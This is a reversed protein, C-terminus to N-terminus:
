ISWVDRGDFLGDRTLIPVIDIRGEQWLGIEKAIRELASAPGVNKVVWIVKGYLRRDEYYTRLVREYGAMEKINLEVEVAISNPSGDPNRPRSVVLDPAHFAGGVSASAMLMWMFENGPRVEPSDHAPSGADRWERFAEDVMNMILPRFTAAKLQLRKRSFGSQLETEGVLSEGFVLKGKGDRRFKGPFDPLNLVNVQGGWLNAATNNVIFSHSLLAPSIRAATVPPFRHGTLLLGASTVVWVNASGWVKIPEVLGRGALGRLRDVATRESVGHIGSLQRGTAYRFKALFCLFDFDKVTIDLSGRNRAFRDQGSSNSYVIKEAAAVAKVGWSEAGRAVKDRLVEDLGATKSLGLGRYFELERENVRARSSAAMYDLGRTVVRVDRPRAWPFVVSDKLFVDTVVSDGPPVFGDPLGVSAHGEAAEVLKDFGDADVLDGRVRRPKLVGFEDVLFEVAGRARLEADSGYKGVRYVRSGPKTRRVRARSRRSHGSKGKWSKSVPHNAKLMWPERKFGDRGRAHSGEGSEGPTVWERSDRLSGDYVVPSRGHVNLEPDGVDGSFEDDVISGGAVISGGPGVEGSFEDDFDDDLFPNLVGSGFGSFLEGSVSNVDSLVPSGSGSVFEDDFGGEDVLAGGFGSVGDVVSLSSDDVGSDIGGDSTVASFDDVLSVSDGVFGNSFDIDDFSDLVVDPSGSDVSGSVTVENGVTGSVIVEGPEVSGFFKGFNLGSGFVVSSESNDDSGSVSSAISSVLDGSSDRVGGPKSGFKSFDM